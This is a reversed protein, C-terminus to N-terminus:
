SLATKSSGSTNPLFRSRILLRKSFCTSMVLVCICYFQLTRPKFLVTVFHAEIRISDKGPGLYEVGELYGTYIRSSPMVEEEIFNLSNFGKNKSGM